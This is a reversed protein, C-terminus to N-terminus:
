RPLGKTRQEVSEREAPSMQEWTDRIRVWLSDPVDQDSTVLRVVEGFCELYERALPSRDTESAM